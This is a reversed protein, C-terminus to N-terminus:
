AQEKLYNDRFKSGDSIHEESRQVHQVYGAETLWSPFNDARTREQEAVQKRYKPLVERDLKVNRALFKDIMTALDFRKLVKVVDIVGFDDFTGSTFEIVDGKRYLKTYRAM